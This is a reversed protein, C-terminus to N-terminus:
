PAPVEYITPLGEDEGDSIVLVRYPGGASSDALVLLSEPKAAGTSIIQALPKTTEGQGDWFHIVSRRQPLDDDDGPLGALILFGGPVAALDRVGNGDLRVSLMEGNPTPGAFLADAPVKLITARGDKAINRLGFYLMGERAALGEITLGGANLPVCSMNPGCAVQALEPIAFIVKALAGTRSLGTPKGTTPDAPIRFVEYRTAQYTGKNRAAGHSGTVYYSGGGAKPDFAVAELDIETQADSGSLHIRELLRIKDPGLTVSWLLDNEDGALLCIRESQGAPTACAMGSLSRREKKTGPDGKITLRSLAKAEPTANQAYSPVAGCVLLAVGFARGALKYLPSM